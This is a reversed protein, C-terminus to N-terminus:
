DKLEDYLSRSKAILRDVDIVPLKRTDFLVVESLLEVRSRGNRSNTRPIGNFTGLLCLHSSCPRPACESLYGVAPTLLSGVRLVCNLPLEQALFTNLWSFAWTNPNVEEEELHSFLEPLALRMRMMFASM